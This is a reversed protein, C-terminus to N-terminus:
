PRRPTELNTPPHPLRRDSGQGAPERERGCCRRATGERSLWKAKGAAGVLRQVWRTQAVAFAEENVAPGASRVLLADVAIGDPSFGEHVWSKAHSSEMSSVALNPPWGTTPQSAGVRIPRPEPAVLAALAVAVGGAALGQLLRHHSRPSM